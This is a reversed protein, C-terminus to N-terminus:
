AQRATMTTEDWTLTKKERIAQLGLLCPLTSYFGIEIDATPKQRTKICDLWNRVHLVESGREGAVSDPLIM